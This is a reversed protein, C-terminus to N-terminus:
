CKSLKPYPAELELNTGPVEERTALSNAFRQHEMNTIGFGTVMLPKGNAMMTFTWEEVHINKLEWPDRFQLFFRNIRHDQWLLLLVPQFTNFEVISASLEWRIRYLPRIGNLLSILLEQWGLKYALIALLHTLFGIPPFTKLNLLAPLSHQNLQLVLSPICTQLKLQTMQQTSRIQM